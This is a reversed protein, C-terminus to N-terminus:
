AAVKISASASRKGPATPSATSANGFDARRATPRPILPSRVWRGRVASAAQSDNRVAVQNGGLPSSSCRACRARDYRSIRLTTGVVYIYSGVLEIRGYALVPPLDVVGDGDFTPDLAGDTAM